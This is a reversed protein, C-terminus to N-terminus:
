KIFKGNKVRKLLSPYGQRTTMRLKSSERQESNGRIKRETDQMSDLFIKAGGIDGTTTGNLRRYAEELSSPQSRAKNRLNM